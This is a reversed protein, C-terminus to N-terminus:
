NVVMKELLLLDAEIKPISKQVRATDFDLRQILLNKAQMEERGKAKVENLKGEIQGHESQRDSVKRDLSQDQFKLKAIINGERNMEDDYQKMVENREVKCEQVQEALEKLQLNMVEIPDCKKEINVKKTCLKSELFQGKQKARRKEDYEVEQAAKKDELDKTVMDATIKLM